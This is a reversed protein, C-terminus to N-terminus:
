LDKERIHNEVDSLRRSLNNMWNELRIIKDQTVAIDAMSVQQQQITEVKQSIVAVEVSLQQTTMVNWGLLGVVITSVLKNLVGDENFMVQVGVLSASSTARGLGLGL